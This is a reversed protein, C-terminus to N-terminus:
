RNFNIDNIGLRIAINKLYAIKESEDFDDQVAEFYMEELNARLIPEDVLSIIREHQQRKDMDRAENRLWDITVQIKEKAFDGMLSDNLFFSDALLDTLNAGFSHKPRNQDSNSIITRGSNDSSKNIYVVNNSPLDSLTLPDHTTFIIQVKIGLQSFFKSCFDIMTKVFGKKWTPHFGLDAEDLLLLYFGYKRDVLIKDINNDFYEHIRSFLNLMATEGSSLSRRSPQINIYHPIEEVVEYKIKGNTDNVAYYKALCNILSQELKYLEDLQKSSVFISKLSWDFFESGRITKDYVISDIYDFLHKLLSLVEEDPLNKRKGLTYYYDKFWLKFLSLADFKEFINDSHKYKISEFHGERLYTNHIEMLRHLICFVDLLIYNKMLNKQLIFQDEETDRKSNRIADAEEEIKQYLRELFWRFDTPTNEFSVNKRNADIRYRTFTIRHFDDDPFDFMEKISEALNSTKLNRIRKFNAQRLIEAPSTTHSQPEFDFITELDKALITDFSLDIGKLKPKFDLFPSYYITSIDIDKVVKEGLNGFDISKGTRMFNHLYIKEGEEFIIVNNEQNNIVSEIIEYMLTTKGAGNAGVISSINLLTGTDDFFEEIFKDNLKRRFTIESPTEQVDYIYKGGFNLTFSNEFLYHDFFYIAALNM